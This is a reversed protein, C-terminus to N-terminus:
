EGIGAPATLLVAPVLRDVHAAQCLGTGTALTAATGSVPVVQVPIREDALLSLIEASSDERLFVAATVSEGLRVVVRAANVGGGGLETTINTCRMKRESEVMPVPACIDFSPNLTVTLLRM